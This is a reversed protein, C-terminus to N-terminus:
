STTLAPQAARAAPSNESRASGGDSAKPRPGSKGAPPRRWPQKKYWSVLYAVAILGAFGAVNALLEALPDGRGWAMDRLIGIAQALVLSALFVALSQQGVKRVVDVFRGWLNDALLRAGGNGVAVWALYALALFHLYRFVGFTTKDWLPTMADRAALLAPVENYAVHWAFPVSALVVVVSLAVLARSVPPAPIWGRMFAFGTFFVLQWGFPNFFWERDSWPEAPLQLLQFAAGM